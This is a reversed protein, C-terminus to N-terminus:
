NVTLPLRVTVTTGRGIQGTLHLEGGFPLVREKMGLIGLSVSSKIEDASIGRGNDQIEAKLCNNEIQLVMTVADAMAHRAVNTLAEQCIRFVATARDADMKLDTLLSVFNCKIGTRTQFDKAQWKLAVILGLDDLVRPRLETAIKRGVEITSNILSAMNQTKERCLQRATADESLLQKELWNLDFKLGALSQGLEDHIERAIRKREEERIEELHKALSRIQELSHELEEKALIRKTIDQVIGVMRLPAGDKDYEARGLNSLWAMDGDSRIVRFEASYTTKSAIAQQITQLVRDRDEPVVLEVFGDLKENFDEMGLLEYCEPSWFVENTRINWEWVGMHATKLALKLRKESELLAQEARKQETVDNLIGHWTFSGDEELVPASYGEVWIEGRQPNLVRWAHHWRSLTQASALISQRLAPFDEPHVKENTIQADEKIEEPRIGYLDFFAPSAYPYSIKDDPSVRFSYIVSPSAAALLSLREREQQLAIEANKKETVDLFSAYGYRKGEIHIATVVVIANLRQGTKTVHITEFQIKDGREVVTGIQTFQEPPAPDFASLPLGRLEEKTYGLTECAVENGNFIRRTEPDVIIAGIASQEFLVQFIEASERLAFEAQKRRSIDQIVAVTHWPRGEQDFLLSATLSVWVSSGDKRVYRKEIELVTVEGTIFRRYKDNSIALDDPHTIAYFSLEQLEEATYGVIECMYQNVRLFRGTHVECEVHGIGTAEFLARFHSESDRLKEESQKRATIDFVVGNFGLFEGDQHYFGRGIAALWHISQDAHIVRYEAEYTTRNQWATHLCAAVSERDDPHITAFDAEVQVANSTFDFLQRCIDDTEVLNTAPHWCWTGMKGAELALRQREEAKHLEEAAERETLQVSIWQAILRLFEYDGSTFLIARPTQSTFCVTGYVRNAILVPVGFYVETGFTTYAKHEQWVSAATHEIALLDNRHIVEECFAESLPCQFGVILSNDLSLVQTVTYQTGTINGLVGNELGFETVGFVLLQQIKDSYSSDNNAVIHHLKRLREESCRLAAEANKRDTINETSIIIGGIQDTTDRWPQVAWRWCRKSGDPLTWEDDDDKTFVGTMGRQHVEKWREPLTPFFDYHCRGIVEQETLNIDEKWRHSAALYCMNRDFMAIGVPAQEVLSCLQEYSKSLAAEARKRETIDMDIGVLREPQGDKDYAIQGRLLGWREQGNALKFRLEARYFGGERRAEQQAEALRQRDEPHVLALFAEYTNPFSGPEYGMLQEQRASWTLKSTKLDRDWTGIQAAETALRLCEESAQLAKTREAIRHELEANLRQLSEEARKQRTIDIHTGVMRVFNGSADKLAVGRCSVWITSGNKHRYRVALDYLKGKTIHDIFAQNALKLDEPFILKQWSSAHNPLEHDEYGFLAKFSPSLYEENTLLNWDWFGDTGYNGILQMREESNSLEETRERILQELEENLRKIKEEAHKREAAEMEWYLLYRRLLVFLLTATLTVFFWGKYTQLLYNASADPFAILLVRDSLLIWLAAISWYLFSIRLSISVSKKQM